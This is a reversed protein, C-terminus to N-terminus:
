RSADNEARDDPTDTLDVVLPYIPGPVDSIDDRTGATHRLAQANKMAAVFNEVQVRTRDNRDKLHYVPLM